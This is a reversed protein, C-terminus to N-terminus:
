KRNTHCSCRDKTWATGILNTEKHCSTGCGIIVGNKAANASTIHELNPLHLWHNFHLTM